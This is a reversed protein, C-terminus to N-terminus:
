FSPAFKTKIRKHIKDEPGPKTKWRNHMWFYQEPYKNVYKELIDVWESTKKVIFKDKSINKERGNGMPVLEIRFKGDPKRV